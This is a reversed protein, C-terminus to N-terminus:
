RSSSSRSPTGVRDRGAMSPGYHAVSPHTVIAGHRSAIRTVAQRHMKEIFRDPLQGGSNFREDIILGQKSMQSNFQRVLETQGSIGTNPVYVYGVRDDTAEEVKRRINEIWELNRLRMESELTKVVVERSGQMAEMAPLSSVTLAVTKGALGEFAAYPDMSVDLPIGNVALIYSGEEVNVGPASLPSRNEIDWPAGRVIRAIRYAGQEVAWDIGLLGVKKEQSTETDGGRVYTHSANM